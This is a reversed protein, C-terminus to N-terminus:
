RSMRRQQLMLQGIPAKRLGKLAEQSMFISFDHNAEIIIPGDSTIAIDWGLFKLPKLVFAASRALEKVEPWFPIKVGKFRFGSIPHEEVDLRGYKAKTKAHSDLIGSDLDINVIFGGGTWNDTYSEKNGIRLLAANHFVDNDIILTDIRITNVSYFNIKNMLEHQRISNQVIYEDCGIKGFLNSYLDSEGHIVNSNISINQSCLSMKYIDRGSGGNYPKIFFSEEKSEQLMKRFENFGILNENKDKILQDRSISFLTQAVNLDHQMMIHCFKNKDIVDDRSGERNLNDRYVHVLEPPIYDLIDGNFSKFYMCHKIYHYPMYRYYKGLRLLEKFQRIMSKKNSSKIYFLLDEAM